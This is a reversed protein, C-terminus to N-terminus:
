CSQAGGQRGARWERWRLWTRAGRRAKAHATGEALFMQGTELQQSVGESGLPRGQSWRDQLPGERIVVAARTDRTRPSGAVAVLIKINGWQGTMRRGSQSTAVTLAKNTVEM